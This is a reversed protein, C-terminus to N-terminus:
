FTFMDDGRISDQLCVLAEVTESILRSRYESIIKEGSSFASEFAVTSSPIALIDRTM